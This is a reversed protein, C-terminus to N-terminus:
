AGESKYNPPDKTILIDHPHSERQGASSFYLFDAKERLENINKAGVYGMGKKLGGVYQFLIDKLEGKYPVLGEVGEPVLEKKVGYRERSGRNTTMAALSGMGRYSKWQRGELFVIEGPAEKTGALMSGMMVSNAGTGIAVPIDGSYRLGGDACLPINYEDCIKSCNYVATVQPCGIGAIIRTTCISGPGQGVKIGDAGAKILREASEPESINGTVVDLEPYFKKIEKLTEIVSKSDGHATDIIVVDIHEKILKELRAIADDYVGIAAGVRLQGKTDINYNKSSGTIIRKVDSFVYLGVLNSDKDILPLAKKKEKVMIKYAEQINIGQHATILQRTMVEKAYLETNNCFDFDNETLIGVLKGESNIVPFTHFTYGREERKKLIEEIKENENACIPKEILGNLHYKVRAVENKQEEPTLNKHIIGLGGLKAIEIALEHETVTDMAASVIPIKLPINRSFLSELSVEEPMVETYGTKLRVDDFTLALGM